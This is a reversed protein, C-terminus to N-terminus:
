KIQEMLILHLRDEVDANYLFHEYLHTNLKYLKGIELNNSIILNEEITYLCAYPNSTIPLHFRPQGDKHKPLGRGQKCNSLVIKTFKTQLREELSTVSNILWNPTDKNWYIYDKASVHSFGWDNVESSISNKLNLNYLGYYEGQNHKQELFYSHLRNLDFCSALKSSAYEIFM